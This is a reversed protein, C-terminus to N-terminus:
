LHPDAKKRDPGQKEPKSESANTQNSKAAPNKKLPNEITLEEKLKDAGAKLDETERSIEDRIDSTARKIEGMGKGVWRAIEPIKDPGFILFVVIMIIFIEGGSINFFGFIIAPTM